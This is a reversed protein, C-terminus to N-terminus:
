KKKGGSDKSDERAKQALVRADHAAKIAAQQKAFQAQDKDAM